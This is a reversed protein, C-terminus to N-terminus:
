MGNQYRSLDLSELTNQVEDLESFQLLKGELSYTEIRVSRGIYQALDLTLAGSTPNPFVSFDAEVELVDNALQAPNVNGPQVLPTSGGTYSVNTFVCTSTGNATYNTTVLGIQICSSMVINQTGVIYWTTGNPSVYMAFQNGTRVIRLWYRNLSTFQQPQAAGNTATRFERRSLTSLNTMLQAKKAGVDNTERMTIGAWANAFVDISSVLATISGNGCLTRQAFSVDDVTFPPGYFCSSATNTWAGTGPTYVVNSNCGISNSNSSWGCPLGGVTVNATCTNVNGNIDTVTVVVPVTTGVSQCGLKNYQLVITDIGCNDSSSLVLDAVTLAISDQGNFTISHPKCAVMPLEDDVVTITFSCTATNSANDTAVYAVTHTGVNFTQSIAAGPTVPVPTGGNISMTLSVFSCSGIPQVPHTWNAVGNCDGTGNSSTGVSFSAQCTIGLSPIVTIIVDTTPGACNNPAPGTPTIRYTVFANTGGSNTLTQAINTGSGATQGTVTGTTSQVVWSFTTGPVNSSLAINTSSNTCITQSAPTAIANPLAYVNYTISIPNGVCDGPTYDGSNDSDYYPTFTEIFQGFTGSSLGYPGYPSGNFYGPAGGVGFDIQARPVAVPSGAYTVNGTGNLVELVGVRNGPVSVYNSYSFSEGACFNLVGFQPTASNVNQAARGAVQATFSIAPIPNVTITYQVLDGIPEGTDIVTNNDLDHWAQFTVVVTGPMSPNLLTATTSTGATFASLAAQCNNCWSVGGVNTTSVTQYVRVPQGPISLNALDQFASTISVNNAVGSCTSATGTDTTGDNNATVTVSNIHAVLQPIGGTCAGAVPQFGITAPASDTGNTLFPSYTVSGSIKTAITAADTTGYWNCTANFTGGNANGNVLAFTTGTISNDHVNLTTGTNATNGTGYVVGLIGSTCNNITNNTITTTNWDVANDVEVGRLFGSLQNNHIFVAFLSAPLTNYSPADNRAQVNIAYGNTQTAGRNEVIENDLIIVNDYAGYKLNIIIGRPNTSLGNNTMLNGSIVANSLKEIYLAANNNSSSANSTFTNDQINVNNMGGPTSNSQVAFIGSNVQNTFASGTIILGNINAATSVYIGSGNANFSCNTLRWDNMTGAINNIHVGYTSNNEFVVNQLTLHNVLQDAYLGKSSGSIKMDRLYARNIQSAGSGSATYTFVNGGANQIITNIGQGRIDLQKNVTIAQATYTGDCIEIVDGDTAADIAGQITAHYSNATSNFVPLFGVSAGTETDTSGNADTVTIDYMGTSLGTITYPSGTIGTVPAGGTWAITYNATGGSFVVEISGGTGCVANSPTASAIVVPTGACSGPVPQFGVTIGDNDTGNVLYPAYLVDGLILSAITTANTTGYWNCTANLTGTGANKVSFTNGSLNNDNVNITKGTINEGPPVIVGNLSGSIINNLVNVPGAYSTGRIRIGGRNADLSTNANTIVNANVNVNSSAGAVQIGQQATNSITNGNINSNSIADVNIGSNGTGNITNSMIQATVTSGPSGGIQMANSSMNQFCNSQISLNAHNTANGTFVALQGSSGNVLNNRFTADLTATGVNGNYNMPSSVGQFHLGEVVVTLSTGNPINLGGTIIAEPLRTDVCPVLSHNPGRLTVSKSLNVTEAYTGAGVVITHGNLTNVDDIASQISCYFLGTNTNTVSAVSTSNAPIPTQPIAAVQASSRYIQTAGTFYAGEDIFVNDGAVGALTNPTGLAGISTANFFIHVCALGLGANDFTNCSINAGTGRVRLSHGFRTTTGAFTNGIITANNADITVLTNGQGTSVCAGVTSSSGATGTIQNSTFVIGTGTPINALQRPVNPATFQNGFGCDGAEAGTFTKGSFINANVTLNNVANGFETLLGAEGNAVIENGRITINNRVGQIYVAAYELGPDSNDYGNITFGRGPGGITVNDATILFTGLIGASGSVTTVAKGGSSRIILSKNVTVNENYIGPAVVIEDGAVAAAVAGSITAHDAPVNITAAQLNMSGLLCGVLLICVM